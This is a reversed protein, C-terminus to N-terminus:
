RRVLYVSNNKEVQAYKGGSCMTGVIHLLQPETMQLLIGRQLFVQSVKNLDIGEDTINRLYDGVVQASEYYDLAKTHFITKFNEELATLSHDAERYHDPTVILSSDSALSLLCAVKRVMMFKRALYHKMYMGPPAIKRAENFRDAMADTIPKCAPHDVLTGKLLAVRKAERILDQFVEMNAKAEYNYKTEDEAPVVPFIFRASLGQGTAESNMFRSFYDPTTGGLLTVYPAKVYESGFSRTEKNFFDPCDFLHLLEQISDGGGIDKLFTGAEEAYIYIPSQVIQRGVGASGGLVQESRCLKLIMAAPTAQTLKYNFNLGSSLIEVQKSVEDLVDLGVRMASSKASGPEGILLVFLNLYLGRSGSKFLVKRQVLGSLLSIATWRTFAPPMNYPKAYEEFLHLFNKTM